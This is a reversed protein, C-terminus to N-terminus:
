LEDIFTMATKAELTGNEIQKAETLGRRISDSIKEIQSKQSTSLTVDERGLSVLAYLNNKRRILVRGGDAARDFSAALNKRYDRVSLVEM